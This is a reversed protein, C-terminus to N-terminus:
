ESRDDACPLWTARPDTRRVPQCPGGRHALFYHDFGESYRRVHNDVGYVAHRLSAARLAARQIARDCDMALVLDPEFDPFMDPEWVFREDLTLGWIERGRSPGSSRVDHGLRAFADRMYRGSAVAYHNAVILIRMPRDRELARM